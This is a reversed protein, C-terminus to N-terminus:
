GSDGSVLDGIKRELEETEEEENPSEGKRLCSDGGWEEEGAFRIFLGFAIVIGGYILWEIWSM